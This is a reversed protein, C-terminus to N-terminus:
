PRHYDFLMYWEDLHALVIPTIVRDLREINDRLAAVPDEGPPALPVPPLYTVRFRARDLREAYAPVVDAGSAWALRVINPLNAQRPLPRGFLPASVYGKREDDAYVILVGREEVLLRHAIRAGAIGPRIMTGGYRRRATVVITHEFRTRPPMYFGAGKVGPLLAIMTPAIVEWNALHLGMVLVPRGDARAGVFHEAGEIAIRGAPWLRDLVAFELMVRGTNEFLRDVIREAEEPTARGDSLELYGRRARTRQAQFRSRGNFRGVAAGVASCWNIPLLRCGFFLGLNLAGLM